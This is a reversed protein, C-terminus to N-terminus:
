GTRGTPNQGRGLAHHVRFGALGDLERAVAGLAVGVVAHVATEEVVGQPPLEAPPDPEHGLVTVPLVPCLSQVCDVM